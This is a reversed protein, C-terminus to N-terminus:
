SDTPPDIVDRIADRVTGPFRGWAAELLLLACAQNQRDLSLGSETLWNYIHQMANRGKDSKALQNVAENIHAETM